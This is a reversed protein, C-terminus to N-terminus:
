TSVSTNHSKLEASIHCQTKARTNGTNQLIVIDKGGLTFCKLFLWSLLINQLM